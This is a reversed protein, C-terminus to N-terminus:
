GVDVIRDPTAAVLGHRRCELAEPSAVGHADHLPRSTAGAVGCGSLADCRLLEAAVIAGSESQQKGLSALAVNAGSSVGKARGCRADCRRPPSSRMWARLALAHRGTAAAGDAHRGGM